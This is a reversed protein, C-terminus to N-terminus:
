LKRLNSEKLASGNTVGAAKIPSQSALPSRSFDANLDSSKRNKIKREWYRSAEELLRSEVQRELEKARSSGIMMSNAVSDLDSLNAQSTIASM